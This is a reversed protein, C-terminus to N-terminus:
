RMDWRIIVVSGVAPAETLRCKWGFYEDGNSAQVEVMQETDNYKLPPERLAVMQVKLTRSNKDM